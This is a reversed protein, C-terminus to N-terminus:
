DGHAYSAGTWRPLVECSTAGRRRASCGDAEKARARPWASGRPTPLLPQTLNMTAALAARHEAKCWKTYDAPRSAVEVGRGLHGEESGGGGSNNRSVGPQQQQQQQEVVTPATNPSRWMDAPIALPHAGDALLLQVVATTDADADWAHAVAFALVPVPTNYRDIIAASNADAGCDHLLLGLCRTCYNELACHLVLAKAVAASGLSSSSGGRGDDEHANNNHNSNGSSINAALCAKVERQEYSALYDRASECSCGGQLAAGLKKLLLPLNEAAKLVANCDDNANANGAGSMEQLTAMTFAPGTAM